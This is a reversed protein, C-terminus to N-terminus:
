PSARSASLSARMLWSRAPRVGHAASAMAGIISARASALAPGPRGALRLLRLTRYGPCVRNEGLEALVLPGIRRKPIGCRCISKWSPSASAPSPTASASRTSVSASRRIRRALPEVPRQDVEVPRHEPEVPALDFLGQADALLRDPLQWGVMAGLDHQVPGPVQGARGCAFVPLSALACSGARGYRRAEGVM